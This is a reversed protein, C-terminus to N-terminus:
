KGEDPGCPRFTRGETHWTTTEVYRRTQEPMTILEGREDFAKELAVEDIEHYDDLEVEYDSAQGYLVKLWCAWAVLMFAIGWLSQVTLASGAITFLGATAIWKNM